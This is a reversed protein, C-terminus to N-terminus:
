PKRRDLPLPDGLHWLFTLFPLEAEMPEWQWQVGEPGPCAPSTRLPSGSSSVCLLLPQGPGAARMKGAGLGSQSDSFGPGLKHAAGVSATPVAILEGWPVRGETGASNITKLRQMLTLFTM